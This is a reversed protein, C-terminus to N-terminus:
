DSCPNSSGDSRSPAKLSTRLPQPLSGDLSASFTVSASGTADVYDVRLHHSGPELDIQLGRSRQEHIGGNDIILTNDIFLKSGDDSSLQFSASSPDEIILCTEWRVSFNNPPLEPLPADERWDFDIVADQRQIPKGQFDPTPFYSGQWPPKEAGLWVFMGSLGIALFVMVGVVLAHRSRPNAANWGSAHTRELRRLMNALQRAQVLARRRSLSPQVDWLDANEVELLQLVFAESTKRRSASLVSFRQQRIATLLDEGTTPADPDEFQILTKWVRLLHVAGHCAEVSPNELIAFAASLHGRARRLYSITAARDHQPATSM